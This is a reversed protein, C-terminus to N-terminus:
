DCLSVYPKYLYNSIFTSEVDYNTPVATQTLPLCRPWTTLIGLKSDSKRPEIGERVVRQIQLVTVGLKLEKGMSTFIWSTLRGGTPIRLLNINSKNYRLMSDSFGLPSLGIFYTCIYHVRDSGLDPM